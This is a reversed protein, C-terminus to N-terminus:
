PKPTKHLFKPNLALGKTNRSSSKEVQASGGYDGADKVHALVPLRLVLVCFLLLLRHREFLPPTALLCVAHLSDHQQSGM